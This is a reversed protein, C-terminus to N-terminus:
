KSVAFDNDESRNKSEQNKSIINKEMFDLTEDISGFGAPHLFNKEFFTFIEEYSDLSLTELIKAFNKEFDKESNIKDQIKVDKNQVLTLFTESLTILFSKEDETYSKQNKM